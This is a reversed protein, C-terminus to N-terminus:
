SALRPPRWRVFRERPSLYDVRDALEDISPHRGLGHVMERAVRRVMNDLGSHLIYAGAALRAPLQTHKM